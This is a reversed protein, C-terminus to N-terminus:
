SMLKFCYSFWEYWRFQVTPSWTKICMNLCNWSSYIIKIYRHGLEHAAVELITFSFSDEVISVSKPTCMTGLYARGIVSTYFESALDYSCTVFFFGVWNVNVNSSMYMMDIFYQAYIIILQPWSQCIGMM